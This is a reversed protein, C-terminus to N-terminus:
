RTSPYGRSGTAREWFEQRYASSKGPNLPVGEGVDEDVDLSRRYKRGTRATRKYLLREGVM